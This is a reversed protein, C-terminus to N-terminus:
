YCNKKKLTPSNASDWFESLCMNLISSIENSNPPSVFNVIDSLPVPWINSLNYYLRFTEFSAVASEYVKWSNKSISNVVLDNTIVFINHPISLFCLLTLALFGMVKSIKSFIILTKNFTQLQLENKRFLFSHRIVTSAL